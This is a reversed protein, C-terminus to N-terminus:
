REDPERHLVYDDVLAQDREDDADTAWYSRQRKREKEKLRLAEEVERAYSLEEAHSRQRCAESCYLSGSEAERNCMLCKPNM